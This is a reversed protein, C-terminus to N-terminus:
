SAWWEDHAKPVSRNRGAAPIEHQGPIALYGGWTNVVVANTMSSQGGSQIASQTEYYSLPRTTRQARAPDDDPDFITLNWEKDADTRTYLRLIHDLWSSPRASYQRSPLHQLLLSPFRKSSAYLHMLSPLNGEAVNTALYAYYSESPSRITTDEHGATIEFGLTKLSTSKLPLSGQAPLPRQITSTVHLTELCPCLNLVQPLYEVEIGTEALKLGKLSRHVAPESLLLSLGAVTLEPLECLTLQRLCCLNLGKGKAIVEDNLQLVRHFALNRMFSLSDVVRLLEQGEVNLDQEVILEELKPWVRNALRELHSEGGSCIKMWRLNPCNVELEAGLMAVSPDDRFIASPLSIFHLNSLPAAVARAIDAYAAERLMYPLKITQISLAIDKNNRVTTVFLSLRQQLPDISQAAANFSRRKKALVPARGCYHTADIRVNQYSCVTVSNTTAGSISPLM